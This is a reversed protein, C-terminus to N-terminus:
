QTLFRVQIAAWIVMSSKQISNLNFNNCLCQNLCQYYNNSLVFTVIIQSPLLLLLPLRSLWGGDCRGYASQPWPGWSHFEALGFPRWCSVVGKQVVCRYHLELDRPVILNTELYSDSIIQALSFTSIRLLNKSNTKCKMRRTIQKVNWHLRRRGPAWWFATCLLQSEM